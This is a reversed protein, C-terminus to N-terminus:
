HTKLGVSVRFLSTIPRSSPCVTWFHERRSEFNPRLSHSSLSLALEQPGCSPPSRTPVRDQCLATALAALASVLTSAKLDQPKLRSQFARGLRTLM